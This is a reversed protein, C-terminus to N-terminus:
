STQLQDSEGCSPENVCERTGAVQKQGPGAQDPGHGRAGSGPSGAM